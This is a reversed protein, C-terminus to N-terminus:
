SYIPELRTAPHWALHRDIEWLYGMFREAPIGKTAIDAAYDEGSVEFGILALRYPVIAHIYEGIEKL